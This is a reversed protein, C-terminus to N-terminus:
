WLARVGQDSTNQNGVTSGSSNQQTTTGTMSDTSNQQTSTTGPTSNNNYQQSGTPTNTNSNDRPLQQSGTNSGGNNVGSNPATQALVPLSLFVSAGAAGVLAVLKQISLKKNNPANM